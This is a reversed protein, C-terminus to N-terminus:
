RGDGDGSDELLEDIADRLKRMVPPLVQFSIRESKDGDKYNFTLNAVPASFNKGRNSGRMQDVRWDVRTLVLGHDLLSAMMLEGRVMLVAHEYGAVIARATMVDIELTELDEVFQEVSLDHEAAGRVLIRTAALGRVIDDRDARYKECFPSVFRDLREKTLDGGLLPGLAEWLHELAEQPLLALRAVDKAVEAKMREGGRSKLPPTMEVQGM